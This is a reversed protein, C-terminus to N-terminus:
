PETGKTPLKQEVLSGPKPTVVKAVARQMAKEAKVSAEVVADLVELAALTYGVAAQAVFDPKLLNLGQDGGIAQIKSPIQLSALGGVVQAYITVFVPLQEQPVVRYGPDVPPPQNEPGQFKEKENM